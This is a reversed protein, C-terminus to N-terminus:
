SREGRFFRVIVEDTGQDNTVGYGAAGRVCYWANWPDLRSQRRAEAIAGLRKDDDSHVTLSKLSNVFASSQGAIM